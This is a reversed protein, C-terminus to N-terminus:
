RFDNIEKQPLLEDIASEHKQKLESIIAEIEESSGSKVLESIAVLQNTVGSMASLVLLKKGPQLAVIERVNRISEPSGVSTGGFKLVKM